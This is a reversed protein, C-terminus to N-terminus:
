AVKPNEDFAKATAWSIRLRKVVQTRSVGLRLMETYACRKEARNLRITDDGSVFREVAIPDVSNRLETMQRRRRERRKANLQAVRRPDSYVDQSWRRRAAAKRAAYTPLSQRVRAYDRNYDRQMQACDGCLPEGTQRHRKIAGWSPHGTPVGAEGRSTGVSTTVGTFTTVAFGGGTLVDAM